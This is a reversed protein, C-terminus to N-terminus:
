APHIWVFLCFIIIIILVNTNTTGHSISDGDVYQNHPLNAKHEVTEMSISRIEQERAHRVPAIAAHTVALRPKHLRDNRVVRSAVANSILSLIM